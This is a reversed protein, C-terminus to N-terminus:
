EANRSRDNAIYAYLVHKSYPVLVCHKTTSIVVEDLLRQMSQKKVAKPYKGTYFRWNVLPTHRQQDQSFDGWAVCVVHYAQIMMSLTSNNAVLGM